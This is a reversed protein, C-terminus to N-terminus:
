IKRENETFKCGLSDTHLNGFLYGELNHSYESKNSRCHLRKYLNKRKRGIRNHTKESKVGISVFLFHCFFFDSHHNIDAAFFANDFISLFFHNIINKLKVVKVCAVNHGVSRFHGRNFHGTRKFLNRLKGYFVTIRSNRNILIVGVADDANKICLIQQFIDSM